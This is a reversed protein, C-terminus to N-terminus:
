TLMSSRQQGRNCCLWVLRSYSAGSDRPSYSLGAQFFFIKGGLARVLGASGCSHMSHSQAEKLVSFLCMAFSQFAVKMGGVRSSLQKAM